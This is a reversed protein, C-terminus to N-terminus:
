VRPRGDRSTRAPVPGPNAIEISRVQSPDVYFGEAGIAICQVDDMVCSKGDRNWITVKM